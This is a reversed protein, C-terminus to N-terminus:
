FIKYDNTIDLTSVDSGCRCRICNSMQSMNLYSGLFICSKILIKCCNIWIQTRISHLWKDFDAFFFIFTQKNKYLCGIRGAAFELITDHVSAWQIFPYSLFNGLPACIMHTFFIAIDSSYNACSIRFHSFYKALKHWFCKDQYRSVACLTSFARIQHM